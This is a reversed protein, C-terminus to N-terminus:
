DYRNIAGWHAGGEETSTLSLEIVKWVSSSAFSTCGMFSRQARLHPATGWPLHHEVQFSVFGADAAASEGPIALSESSTIVISLDPYTTHSSHFYLRSFLTQILLLELSFISFRKDVLLLKVFALVANLLFIVNCFAKTIALPNLTLATDVTEGSLLLVAKGLM